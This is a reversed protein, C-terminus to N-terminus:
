PKLQATALKLGLGLLLLGNIRRLLRSAGPSRRLRRSLAASFLAVLLCWITGTTIFLAGLILFSLPKNPSALSIFQPLFALFFLAVKPNLINTVAGQRYIQLLDDRSWRKATVPPATAAGGLLQVGQYVLYACGAYKLLAFATASATIIASLGFAGLLTHVISGSGIGLAAAVGAARGQSLSRGIIYFTDPGPYLNLLIGTGVFIALNEIGLM